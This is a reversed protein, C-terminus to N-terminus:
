SFTLDKSPYCLQHIRTLDGSTSIIKWESYTITKMWRARIVESHNWYWDWVEDVLTKAKKFEKYAKEYKGGAWPKGEAKQENQYCYTSLEVITMEKLQEITM